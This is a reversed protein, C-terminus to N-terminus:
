DDEARILRLMPLESSYHSPVEFHIDPLLNEIIPAVDLPINSAEASDIKFRKRFARESLWDVARAVLGKRGARSHVQRPARNGGNPAAPRQEVGDLGSQIYRPRRSAEPQEQSRGPVNRSPRLSIAGSFSSGAFTEMTIESSGLLGCASVGPGHARTDFTGDMTMRCNDTRFLPAM